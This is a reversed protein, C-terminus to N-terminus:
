HIPANLMRDYRGAAINLVVSSVPQETIMCGGVTKVRADSSKYRDLNKQYAADHLIYLGLLAYCQGALNAEPLLAKLKGAADPEDLLSRLAREEKSTTGAVGIGGLAFWQAAKLTNWDENSSLGCAAGIHLVMLCLVACWFKVSVMTASRSVGLKFFARWNTLPMKACMVGQNANVIRRAVHDLRVLV